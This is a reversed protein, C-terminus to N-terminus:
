ALGYKEVYAKWEADELAKRWETPDEGDAWARRRRADYDVPYVVGGITVSGQTKPPAGAAYAWEEWTLGEANLPETM